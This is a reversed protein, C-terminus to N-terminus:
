LGSGAALCWGVGTSRGTFGLAEAIDDGGTRM